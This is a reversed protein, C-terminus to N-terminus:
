TRRKYFFFFPRFIPRSLSLQSAWAIIPPSSIRTQSKTWSAIQSTTGSPTPTWLYLSSYLLSHAARPQKRQRPVVLVQLEQLWSPTNLGMGECNGRLRCFYLCLLKQGNLKDIYSTSICMKFSFILQLFFFCNDM